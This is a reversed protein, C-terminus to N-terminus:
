PAAPKPPANEIALLALVPIGRGTVFRAEERVHAGFDAAAKHITAVVRRASDKDVIGTRLPVLFRPQPLQAIAARVVGYECAQVESQGTCSELARDIGVSPTGTLNDPLGSLNYTTVVVTGGQAQRLHEGLARVANLNMSITEFDRPDGRRYTNALLMGHTIFVVVAIALAAPVGRQVLWRGCAIAACALGVAQIYVIPCYNGGPAQNYALWAFIVFFLQVAGCAAAIRDHPLRRVAHVFERACYAFAIAPALLTWPRISGDGGSAVDFYYQLDGAFLITDLVQMGLLAPNLRSGAIDLRRLVEYSFRDTPDALTALVLPLVVIASGAAAAIWSRRPTQRLVPSQHLAFAILPVLTVAAKINATVALAMLAGATAARTPTVPQSPDRRTVIVLVSAAVLLPPLTEFTVLLSHLIVFAPLVATTVAAAAAHLPGSVREAVIFLVILAAVGILLGTRRFPVLDGHHVPRLLQLPWYHVGGLYPTILLPWALGGACLVLQPRHSTYVFWADNECLHEVRASETRMELWAAPPAPHTATEEHWSFQVGAFYWGQALM